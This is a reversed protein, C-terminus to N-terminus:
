REKESGCGAVFDVRGKYDVYERADIIKFGIWWGRNWVDKGTSNFKLLFGSQEEIIPKEGPM